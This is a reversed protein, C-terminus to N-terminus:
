DTAFGQNSDGNYYWTDIATGPWPSNGNVDLYLGSSENRITRDSLDQGTLGTAWLQIPSGTCQLQYVQDAAVGDTTLCQGSNQNVIEYVPTGNDTGHQSFTWSQNAGGNSFWDIVPAGPATSAGAVDLQLLYTNGPTLHTDFTGDALAPAALAGGGLLASSALVTIALWRRLAHASWRRLDKVVHMFPM